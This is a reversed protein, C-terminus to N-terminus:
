KVDVTIQCFMVTMGKGGSGVILKIKNSAAKEQEGLQINNTTRIEHTESLSGELLMNGTLKTDQIFYRSSQQIWERGLLIISIFTVNKACSRVHSLVKSITM